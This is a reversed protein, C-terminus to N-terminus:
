RLPWSTIRLYVIPPLSSVLLSQEVELLGPLPARWPILVPWSCPVEQAGTSLASRLQACVATTPLIGGKGTSQRSQLGCPTLLRRGLTHAQATVSAMLTKFPQSSSSLGSSCQYSCLPFTMSRLHTQNNTLVNFVIIELIRGRSEFGKM